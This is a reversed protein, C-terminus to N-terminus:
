DRPPFVPDRKQLFAQVGERFAPRDILERQRSREYDLQQALDNGEAAEYAARAELAAGAPLKALRRALGLAEDALSADAVCAWAVGWDVAQQAPLRDGLLTLGMARQRGLRRPLFWTSGMDPVIGLRPIFPLYLYSSQAMLLVDAALALGAGAGAAPGNVACVVPVPLARLALVIPNTLEAMFDATWAGLSPNAAAAQQMEELDAGVCFARGAATLVLARVSTDGHLRRLTDLLERQLPMTIPNPKDPHQLTVTAIGDAIACRVLPTETM